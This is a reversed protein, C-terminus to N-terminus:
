FLTPKPLHTKTKGTADVEILPKNAVLAKSATDLTGGSRGAQGYLAIVADALQVLESNRILPAAKPPYNQYDPRIVKTPVGNAKAWNEAAQDSGKAGGHLLILQPHKRKAAQLLELLKQLGPRSPKRAGTVLIQM